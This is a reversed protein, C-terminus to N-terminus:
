FTYLTVFSFFIHQQMISISHAIYRIFCQNSDTAKELKELESLSEYSIDADSDFADYVNEESFLVSFMIFLM